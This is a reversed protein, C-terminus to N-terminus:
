GERNLRRRPQDGRDGRDGREGLRSRDSTEIETKTKASTVVNFGLVQLSNTEANIAEISGQLEEVSFGKNEQMKVKAPVFGRDGAHYSGKLKVLDGPKLDRLAINQRQINKLEIGDPLIFDRNMLRLLNKAPEVAQVKGEFAVNEDPPKVNIEVAQFNGQADPRGKVKVRQGVKLSGFGPSASM